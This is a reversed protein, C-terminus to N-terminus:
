GGAFAECADLVAATLDRDCVSQLAQWGPIGNVEPVVIEGDSGVLLDVGAVDAGVAAAAALATRREDDTLTVARPRGGRAVNARWSDSVREMAGIVEGAVVLARVDRRGPGDVTRQLYYVARELELAAFVRHAVDRDCVRVIGNGMAGFLPKVIVDGGLREFAAQADDRRECVITPPTPVGAAALLAGAWSKDITRELAGPGNVCRVGHARRAPAARGDPLGGARAFRAATRPRDASRAHRAPRRGPRAGARNRRRRDSVRAPDSPDRLVRSRPGRARRGAPSLAVLRDRRASRRTFPREVPFSRELVSPELGGAHHARGSETSTLTVEAPSFLLPDIDYFKWDAAKLLEGFPTGFADSASSPLKKALEAVDDDSGELWLHVTGGYLVADNTRGIATPDDSAVPAVPCCGWGYRVREPDVGLEHLKHLSTEVVRASIQVSGCISATPAILFTVRDPRVGCRSAVKEVVEAPPTQSTELCLIAVDTGEPERWALEEFLPEARALARGPGSAM